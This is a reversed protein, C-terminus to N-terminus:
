KDRNIINRICEEVRENVNATLEDCFLISSDTAM